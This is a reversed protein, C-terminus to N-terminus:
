FGFRCKSDKNASRDWLEMREINGVFALIQQCHLLSVTAMAVATHLVVATCIILRIVAPRQGGGSNM